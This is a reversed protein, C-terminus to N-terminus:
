HQRLSLALGASARMMNARRMHFGDAEEEEVKMKVPPALQADFVLDLGVMRKERGLPVRATFSVGPIFASYKKEEYRANNVTYPVLFVSPGFGVRSHSRTNYLYGATLEYVAYEVSPQFGYSGGIIGFFSSSGQGIFGKVSGKERRGAILFISKKDSIAKGARLLLSAEVSKKPYDTVGSWGFFNYEASQNFGQDNMQKKISLSPGGLGTGSSFSLFWKEKKQASAWLGPSLLLLLILKRM